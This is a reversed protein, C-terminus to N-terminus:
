KVIRPPNKILKKVTKIKCETEELLSIFALSDLIGSEILDIEKNNKISDDECVRVLIDIIKEEM